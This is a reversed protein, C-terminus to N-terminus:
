KRRDYVRRLELPQKLLGSEFRIVQTMQEGGSAMTFTQVSRTKDGKQEIVLEGGKWGTHCKLKHGLADERVHDRDLYYIAVDQAADVVKFEAASQEIEVEDFEKVRELMFERLQVRDVEKGAKLSAILQSRGVGKVQASGAVEEIKAVADDSKGPDFRWHGSFNPLADAAFAAPALLLLIPAVLRKPM